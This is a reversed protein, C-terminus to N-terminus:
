SAKHDTKGSLKRLTEPVDEHQLSRPEFRCIRCCLQFISAQLLMILVTGIGFPAGMLIGIVLVIAEILFKVAGIPVKPLRRGIIVMLTDRPGCGLEPLMYIVTAFSSIVQGALTWLIGAFGGNGIPLARLVQIWLDSSFAIILINLITGFGIKGKGIVDIVIVALSILLTATGFSIHFVETFGISLTNWSNTGADGAIVGCASGLGYLVLGLICIAFRKVYQKTM